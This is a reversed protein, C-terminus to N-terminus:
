VGLCRPTMITKIYRITLSVSIAYPPLEVFDCDSFGPQGLGSYHPFIVHM